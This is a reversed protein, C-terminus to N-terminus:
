QIEVGKGERLLLRLIESFRLGQQMLVPLSEKELAQETTWKDETVVECHGGSVQVDVVGPINRILNPKGKTWLRGYRALLEDKEYRGTLAGGNMCVVYDAFERVEDPVHTAFLLARDPDEDLYSVWEERLLEQGEIDVGSLAEDMILLKTKRALALAALGKRQMGVSLSDFRKKQPLQFRELLRVFKAQDWQEYGIQSLEALQKLTFREYGLSTQPVYAVHEKWAEGKYADNFRSIYGGDAFVMGTLLRILTSKGAGNTGVLATVTGPEIQFTLPGIHIGQDVTKTVERLDIM